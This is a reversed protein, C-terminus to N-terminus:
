LGKSALSSDVVDVHVPAAMSPIAKRFLFFYLSNLM